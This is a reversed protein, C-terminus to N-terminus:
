PFGNNLAIHSISNTTYLLEKMSHKLRINMLYRNFGVGIKEKFYRSLYSYSLYFKEAVDELTIKQDYNEKIFHIIQMLRPDRTDVKEQITGKQKFRRILILLIDSIYSLIEIQYSEGKRFYTIILEALLKRIQNIATDRAMDVEGSFCEFRSNPYAEYRQKMFSDSIQLLLVHNKKNGKEQFLQNRNIVLIDKE